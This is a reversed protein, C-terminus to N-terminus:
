SLKAAQIDGCLCSLQPTNCFFKKYPEAIRSLPILFDGISLLLPNSISAKYAM